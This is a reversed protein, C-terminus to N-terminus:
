FFTEVPSKKVLRHILFFFSTFNGLSDSMTVSMRHLGNNSKCEDGFSVPDQVRIIIAVVLQYM